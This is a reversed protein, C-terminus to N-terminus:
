SDRPSPSTYLLCIEVVRADLERSDSLLCTIKGPLRSAKTIIWGDSGVIGGLATNRGDTRVRVTARRANSVVSRFASRVNPGDTLRSKPIRIRSTPFPRSDAYDQWDKGPSDVEQSPARHVQLFFSVVLVCLVGLQQTCRPPENKGSKSIDRIRM